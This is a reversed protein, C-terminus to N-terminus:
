ERRQRGTASWPPTTLHGNRSLRGSETLVSALGPTADFMAWAEDLTPLTEYEATTSSAMSIRRILGTVNPDVVTQSM